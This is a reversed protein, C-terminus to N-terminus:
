NNKQYGCLMCHDHSDLEHEGSYPISKETFNGNEDLVYIWLLCKDDYYESTMNEYEVDYAVGCEECYIMAYNNDSSYRTLTYKHIETQDIVKEGCRTCYSERYHYCGEDYEESYSTTEQQIDFDQYATESKVTPM